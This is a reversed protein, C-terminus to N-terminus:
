LPHRFRRVPANAFPIFCLFGSPFFIFRNTVELVADTRVYGSKQLISWAIETDNVNMQCGYTELFVKNHLGSPSRATIYPPPDEEVAPSSYPAPPPSLFFEKLDPGAALRSSFEERRTPTKLHDRAGSSYWRGPFWARARSLLRVSRFPEMASVGLLRFA